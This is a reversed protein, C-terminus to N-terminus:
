CIHTIERERKRTKLLLYIPEAAQLTLTQSHAFEIKPCNKNQAQRNIVSIVFAKYCLCFPEPSHALPIKIFSISIRKNEAFTSRSTRRNGFLFKEGWFFRISILFRLLVLTLCRVILGINRIM